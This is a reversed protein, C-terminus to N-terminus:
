LGIDGGERVRVQNKGKSLAEFNRTLVLKYIRKQRVTMDVRLIQEVKPPLSKEVDKKLRRFLRYCITTLFSWKLRSALIWNVLYTKRDTQLMISLHLKETTIFWHNKKTVSTMDELKGSLLLNLFLIFSSM